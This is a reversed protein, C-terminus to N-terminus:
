EWEITSPPTIDYVVCNVGVVDNIIRTHQNM